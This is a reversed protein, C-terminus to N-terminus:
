RLTREVAERIAAATGHAHQLAADLECVELRGARRDRLSRVARPTAKGAVVIGPLESRAALVTAVVKGGLTGDDVTGEGTVVVDASSLQDVLGTADAVFGAGSVLTAGLALLAGALGGAAGARPVGDVDVGFRRRYEDAVSALREELRRVQAASAGKQPGFQAPAEAFLADVDCAGVLAVGVVVGLEDLARVCGAGGDTTASGGCGVVVRTAGSTVAAAILEGVGYTSAELPDDGHPHALLARGAAEASEVIATGDDHLMWAATVSAGLPGHVVTRRVSGGLVDIFGEGGDSMPCTTATWRASAAGQAIATAAERATATGRFKDPAAVLHPV